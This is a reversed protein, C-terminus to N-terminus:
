NRLLIYTPDLRYYAAMMEIVNRIGASLIVTPINSRQCAEFVEKAGERLKAVSLFAGEVEHMSPEYSCILDLTESWKERAIEETLKGQLELPRFSQYIQRHREVGEEPMLADMVDWTGVNQGVERGATLTLDFDAIMHVRDPGAVAFAALKNRITDSAEYHVGNLLDQPIEPLRM